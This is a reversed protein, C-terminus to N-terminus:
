GHGGLCFVTDYDDARFTSLNITNAPAQQAAPDDKFRRTGESRPTPSMARLISHSQGRKSAAFTITAAAAAAMSSSYLQRGKRLHTADAAAGVAKTSVPVATVTLGATGADSPHSPSSRQCRGKIV